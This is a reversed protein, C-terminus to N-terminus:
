GIIKGGWQHYTLSVPDWEVLVACPGVNYNWNQLFQFMQNSQQWTGGTCSVTGIPRVIRDFVAISTQNLPKSYIYVVTVNTVPNYGYGYNNYAYQDYYYGGGNGFSLQVWTGAIRFGVTINAEIGGNMGPANNPSCSTTFITVIAVLVILFLKSKM